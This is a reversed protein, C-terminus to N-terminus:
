SRRRFFRERLNTERSDPPLILENGQPDYIIVRTRAAIELLDRIMSGSVSWRINLATGAGEMPQWLPWSSWPRLDPDAEPSPWRREVEDLFHTMEPSPSRPSESDTGNVLRDEETEMLRHVDPITAPGTPPFVYLDFSM